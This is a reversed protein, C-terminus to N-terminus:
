PTTIILLQKNALTDSEVKLTYNPNITDLITPLEAFPYEKANVLIKQEMGTSRRLMSKLAANQTAYEQAPLERGTIKGKRYPGCATLTIVALLLLTFIKYVPRM